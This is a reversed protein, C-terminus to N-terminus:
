LYNFKYLLIGRSLLYYILNLYFVRRLIITYKIRVDYM